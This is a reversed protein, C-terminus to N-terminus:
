DRRRLNNRSQLKRGKGWKRKPRGKTVGTIRDIKALAQVDAKTKRKHCEHHLPRLNSWHHEGGLGEAHLHDWDVREGPRIPERCISCIVPREVVIAAHLFWDQVDAKTTKSKSM